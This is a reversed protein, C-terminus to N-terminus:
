NHKSYRGVQLDKVHGFSFPTERLIESKLLQEGDGMLATLAAFM